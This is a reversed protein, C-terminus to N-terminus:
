QIRSLKIKFIEFIKKRMKYDHLVILSSTYEYPPPPPSNVDFSLFLCSNINIVFVIKSVNLNNLPNNNQYETFM